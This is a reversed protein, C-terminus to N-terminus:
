EDEQRAATASITEMSQVGGNDVTLFRLNGDIAAPTMVLRTSGWPIGDQEGPERHTHGCVIYDLPDDVFLTIQARVGMTVDYRHTFGISWRAARMQRRYLHLLGDQGSMEDAIMFDKTDFALYGDPGFFFRYTLPGFFHQYHSDQRDHNGAVVFTPLRCADLLALFDRFQEPEGNETLDGTVLAFAAESANIAEIVEAIIEKDPRAHRTTGTHIDTIHAVQYAEPFAELVYVSRQNSDIRDGAKAQLTYSGAPIPTELRCRGLSKGDPRRSWDVALPWEGSGNSLSLAAEEELVAEFTGQTDTIAPIGNNPILVLDLTGDENRAVAPMGALGSIALILATRVYCSM